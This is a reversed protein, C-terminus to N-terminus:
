AFIYHVPEKLCFCNCIYQYHIWVSLPLLGCLLEWRCFLKDCPHFCLLCSHHKFWPWANFQCLDWLFFLSPLLSAMFISSPSKHSRIWCNKEACTKGGISMWFMLVVYTNVCVLRNWTTYGSVNVKKLSTWVADTDQIPFANWRSEGHNETRVSVCICPVYECFGM